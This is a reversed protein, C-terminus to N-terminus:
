TNTRARRADYLAKLQELEEDTWDSLEGEYATVDEFKDAPKLGARDLVDRAARLANGPDKKDEKLRNELVGIAPDVLAAFRRQAAARVQPASGGHYVCVTAGPVAFQRCRSGSTRSHAQCRGDGPGGKPYRIGM